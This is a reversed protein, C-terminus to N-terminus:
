CLISSGYRTPLSACLYTVGRVKPPLPPLNCGTDIGEIQSLLDLFDSFRRHVQADVKKVTPFCPVHSCSVQWALNDGLSVSIVYM